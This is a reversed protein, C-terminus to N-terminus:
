GNVIFPARYANDIKKQVIFEPCSAGKPIATLFWVVEGPRGSRSYNCGASNTWWQAGDVPPTGQPARTGGASASIPSLVVAACLAAIANKSLM